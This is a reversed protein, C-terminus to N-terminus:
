KNLRSPMITIEQKGTEDDKSTIIFAEKNPCSMEVSVKTNMPTKYIKNNEEYLLYCNEWIANEVSTKTVIAEKGENGAQDIANVRKYSKKMETGHGPSSILPSTFNQPMNLKHKKRFDVSSTLTSIELVEINLVLYNEKPSTLSIKLKDGPLYYYQSFSPHYMAYVNKIGNTDNLISAKYYRNNEFDYDGADADLNTIYRWFPRFVCGGNTVKGDILARSFALGVDSEHKAHGGLYISSVDLNKLDFSNIQELAEEKFRRLNPTPLTIVGEIGKFDYDVSMVKHYWAGGFCVQEGKILHSLDLKKIM